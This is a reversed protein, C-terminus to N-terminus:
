VIYDDKYWDEEEVWILEKEYYIKYIYDIIFKEISDSKQIM